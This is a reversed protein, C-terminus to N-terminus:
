LSSYVMTDEKEEREQLFNPDLGVSEPIVIEGGEEGIQEQRRVAKLPRITRENRHKENFATDYGESLLYPICLLHFILM